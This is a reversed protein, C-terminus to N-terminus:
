SLRKTLKEVSQIEEGSDRGSGYVFFRNGNM